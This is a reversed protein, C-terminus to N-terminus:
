GKLLCFFFFPVTVLFPFIFLASIIIKNNL